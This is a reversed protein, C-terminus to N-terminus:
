ADGQIDGLALPSLVCQPREGRTQLVNPFFFSGLHRAFDMIHEALRQRGNLDIQAEQNM